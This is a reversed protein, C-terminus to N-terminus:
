KRLSGVILLTAVSFMGAMTLGTAYITATYLPVTKYRVAALAIATLILSSVTFAYTAAVGYKLPRRDSEKPLTLVAGFLVALIAFFISSIGLAAPALVELLKAQSDTIM